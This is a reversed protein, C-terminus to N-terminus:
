SGGKESGTYQGNMNRLEDCVCVRACPSIVEELFPSASVSVTFVSFVCFNRACRWLIEM